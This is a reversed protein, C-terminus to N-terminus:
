EKRKRVPHTKPFEQAIRAAEPSCQPHGWGSASIGNTIDYVINDDKLPSVGAPVYDLELRHRVKWAINHDACSSDGSVGLAGVLKGERNYLALGGGFVNVGGIKHGVMPDKETGYKESSGEYAEEPSVPNSEQLGFLSGGPQVASFLNATSLAFEPLSFANATNAKQASIVRSGPWQDGRDRGSFVVARVVGDRDVVTAWMHFGFGGNNEKVAIRLAEKLEAHLPLDSAFAGPLYTVALILLATGKLCIAKFCRM